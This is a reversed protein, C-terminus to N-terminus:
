LAVKERHGSDIDRLAELLQAPEFPKELYGACGFMTAFSKSEKDRRCSIVIVPIDSTNWNESLFQSVQYGDTGPMMLDLLIVDFPEIQAAAMAELGKSTTVVRHGAQALLDKLFALTDEEDDVVLIRM